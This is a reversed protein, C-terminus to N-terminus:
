PTASISEERASSDGSGSPDPRRKRPSFYLALSSQYACLYNDVEDEDEDDDDDDDGNDNDDDSNGEFRDDGDGDGDGDGYPYRVLCAL